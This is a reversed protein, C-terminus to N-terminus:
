NVQIPPKKAYNFIPVVAAFIFLVFALIIIAEVLFIKITCKKSVGISRLVGITKKNNAISVYSKCLKEIKLM